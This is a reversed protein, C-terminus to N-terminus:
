SRRDQEQEPGGLVAPNHPIRVSPGNTHLRGDAKVSQRAGEASGHM